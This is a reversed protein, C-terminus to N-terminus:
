KKANENVFDYFIEFSDLKNQNLDKDKIKIGFKKEIEVILELVDISDFFLGDEGILVTDDTISSIDDDSKAVTLIVKKLEDKDVM